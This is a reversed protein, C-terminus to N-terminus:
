SLQKFNWYMINRSQDIAVYIQYKEKTIYGDSIQVISFKNLSIKEHGSGREIIVETLTAGAQIRKYKPFSQKILQKTYKYLKKNM